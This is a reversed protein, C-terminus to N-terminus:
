ASPRHTGRCPTSKESSGHRKERCLATFRILSTGGGPICYEHYGRYDVEHKILSHTVRAMKVAVATLAKRKLDGDTPDKGVYRDFKTRFSNDRMRVAVTAALWYAYRLRANGRKALRYRSCTNGSQSAALNFGCFKVQNRM